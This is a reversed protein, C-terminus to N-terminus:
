GAGLARVRDLEDDCGPPHAALFEALLEPTGDPWRATARLWEVLATSNRAAVIEDEPFWM